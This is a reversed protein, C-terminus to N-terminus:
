LGQSKFGEKKQSPTRKENNFKADFIDEFMGPAHEESAQLRM